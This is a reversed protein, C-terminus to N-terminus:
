KMCSCALYAFFFKFFSFMKDLICASVPVYSARAHKGSIESKAHRDRRLGPLQGPDGGRRARMVMGARISIRVSAESRCM